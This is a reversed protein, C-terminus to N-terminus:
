NQASHERGALSERCRGGGLRVNEITRKGAEGRSLCRRESATVLFELSPESRGLAKPGDEVVRGARGTVATVTTADDVVRKLADTAAGVVQQPSDPTGLDLVLRDGAGDGLRRRM